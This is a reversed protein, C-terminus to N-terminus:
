RTPPNGLAEAHENNAYISQDSSPIRYIELGLAVGAIDPAAMPVLYLWRLRSSLHRKHPM